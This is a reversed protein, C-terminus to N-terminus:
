QGKFRNDESFSEQERVVVLTLGVPPSISWMLSALTLSIEGKPLICHTWVVHRAQPPGNTRDLNYNSVGFRSELWAWMGHSARHRGMMRIGLLIRDINVRQRLSRPGSKGVQVPFLIDACQFKYVQNEPKTLMALQSPPISGWCLPRKQEWNKWMSPSTPQPDKM